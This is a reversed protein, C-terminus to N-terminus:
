ASFNYPCQQQDEFPWVSILLAAWAPGNNMFRDRWDCVHRQRSLVQWLDVVYQM